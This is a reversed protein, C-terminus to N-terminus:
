GLQAREGAGLWGLTPPAPGFTPAQHPPSIARPPAEVLQPGPVSAGLIAPSGASGRWGLGERHGRGVPLRIHIQFFIAPPVSHSGPCLSSSLFVGVQM